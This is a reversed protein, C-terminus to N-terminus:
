FNNFEYISYYKEVMSTPQTCITGKEIITTQNFIDKIYQSKLVMLEYSDDKIGLILKPSKRSLDMIIDGREFIYERNKKNGM